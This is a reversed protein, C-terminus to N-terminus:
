RGHCTTCVESQARKSARNAVAFFPVDASHCMACEYGRERVLRHSTEFHWYGERPSALLGQLDDTTLSIRWTAADPLEQEPRPAKISTNLASAAQADAITRGAIRGTVLAPGLFMGDMGHLGNIGVSGTLEGAAYLGVIVEGTADVVRAEADIAIGGMSKRTMPFFHLAYYPPQEIKPPAEDSSMFRGFEPDSGRDIAANFREISAIMTGAPLGTLAALEELTDAKKTIASDDLVMRHDPANNVWERGRTAFKPRSSEDFIAWYSAPSQELLDALIMKDFGAENTFRRGQENLWVANDNGATIALQRAPDRPDVIGNTYIYHRNMRVLAAGAERALDLGQGQAHVSAGVLLRDPQPMSPPWNELVRELNGEFGGTALLVYPARLTRVVGSRLNHVVVGTVAGQEVVLDDVQENWEFSVSPLELATRYLALVVDLAGEPTFHFRPVRNEHGGQIRVFEVGMDALWEYIMASSHEAYYRTWAPDGDETWRMWDTYAALTSDEIGLRKQLPTDAIAFGGAMVAHGGMVSNMDVVLVHVGDRGMEVAAALGALGAGVVIAEADLETAAGSEPSQPSCACLSAVVVAPSLARAVRPTKM